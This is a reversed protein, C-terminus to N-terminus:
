VMSLVLVTAGTMLCAVIWTEHNTVQAVQFFCYPLICDNHGRLPKGGMLSPDEADDPPHDKKELHTYSLHCLLVLGAMVLAVGLILGVTMGRKGALGAQSIRYQGVSLPAGRALQKPLMNPSWWVHPANGVAEGMTLRTCDMVTCSVGAMTRRREAALFPAWYM